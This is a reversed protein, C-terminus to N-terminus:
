RSITLRRDVLFPLSPLEEVNERGVFQLGVSALSFIVVTRRRRTRILALEPCVEFLLKDTVPDRVEIFGEPKYRGTRGVRGEILGDAEAIAMAEDAITEM